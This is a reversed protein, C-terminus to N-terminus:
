SAVVKGVVECPVHSTYTGARRPVKVVLDGLVVLDGREIVPRSRKEDREAHWAANQYEAAVLVATEPDWTVHTPNPREVDRSWVCFTGAENYGRGTPVNAPFRQYHYQESYYDPTETLTTPM